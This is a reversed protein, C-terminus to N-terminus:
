AQKWIEQIKGPLFSEVEEVRDASLEDKTASFIAKIVTEPEVGDTQKVEQSIRYFFHQDDFHQPQRMQSYVSEIPDTDRWLEAVDQATAQDNNPLDREEATIAPTHLESEVRKIAEQTMLDRMSRFVIQVAEKAESIDEFHGKLKVKHLFPTTAVSM